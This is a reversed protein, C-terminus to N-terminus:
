PNLSQNPFLRENGKTVVQMGPKLGEAQIAATSDKYLLVSVPFMTATGNNDVFVVDSGFRKIVADRPVLLTDQKLENQLTIQAEMGALLISGNADLHIKLPFTRSKKDGEKIIGQVIGPYRKDAITIEVASGKEMRMAYSAPINFLVEVRRPNILTAIKGGESVWEGVEVNRESIVGDFPALIMSQNREITLSELQAKQAIFKQQLGIKNYYVDDYKQQSVNKQKLLQQYRKLDKAAKELQLDLERLSAKIATIKSDLIEHDLEVLLMGKNVSQTTEFDVKLVLGPRKSALVSSQSFNVTGIFNQSNSLVGQTIATTEVTSASYLAPSILLLLLITLTRNM